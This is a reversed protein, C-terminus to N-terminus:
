RKRGHMYPMSWIERKMARQVVRMGRTLNSATPPPRSVKEDVIREVEFIASDHSLACKEAQLPKIRHTEKGGKTAAYSLNAGHVWWCLSVDALFPRFRM